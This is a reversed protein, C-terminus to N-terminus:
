FTACCIADDWASMKEDESNKTMSFLFFYPVAINRQALDKYHCLRITARSEWVVNNFNIISKHDWCVENIKYKVLFKALLIFYETM